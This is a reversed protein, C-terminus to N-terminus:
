AGRTVRIAKLKLSLRRLMTQRPKVSSQNPWARVSWDSISAKALERTMAARAVTALTTSPAMVASASQRNRKGPRVANSPAMARGM